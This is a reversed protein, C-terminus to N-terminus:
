LRHPPNAAELALIYSAHDLDGQGDACMKTYVDNVHSLLPLELNLESAANLIAKMDKIFIVNPGGPTFNREVMRLGHETLIRSDAFGGMLCERVVGADAGGAAALLLGESVAAITIAVITQNALKTLQGSGTKGIHTARGLTKFVQTASAFAAETGGAMIVLTGLEAGKTGGSVPSDLYEIGLAHLADCHKKAMLPAISSTDIVLAGRKIYNIAGSNYLVEDVINGNQLMTFVVDADKVAETANACNVAGLEILPKLKPQSRNWINVAFGDRLLRESMHIGMLGIGLFAIKVQSNDAM